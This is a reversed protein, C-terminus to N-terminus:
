LEPDFDDQVKVQDFQLGAQVGNLQVVYNASASLTLGRASLEGPTNTPFGPALTGANIVIRGVASTGIIQGDAGTAEVRRRATKTM